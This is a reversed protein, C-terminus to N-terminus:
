WRPERRRGFSGGGGSGAGRGGGGGTREPRPRAENVNLARGGLSKGNLAAIARDADAANAM